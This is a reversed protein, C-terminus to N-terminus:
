EIYGGKAGIVAEVRTRFSRCTRIVFDDEMKKWEKTISAKLAELSPHSVSQVKQQLLSWVGYDLPNLDPSQPPWMDKRWFHMKGGLEQHLKEQISKSTHAPAGDQQFVFKGDPYTKKIWPIVHMDLLRGYVKSDIKENANVFIIPCKQGDSGVVGLVMVKQPHKNVPNYRVRPDVENQPLDSLYRSNRRNLQADVHFLKEDSFIRVFKGTQQDKMFNMLSKCRDVRRQRNAETLRPKDMIVRSKMNLEKHVLNRMSSEACDMKKSLGRISQRPNQQIIRAVTKVNRPTRVTRPRGSRPADELTGGSQLTVKVRKVTSLSVGCDAAIQAQTKGSGAAGRLCGAVLTRKAQNNM